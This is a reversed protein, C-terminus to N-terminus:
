LCEGAEITSGCTLCRFSHPERILKTRKARRWTTKCQPCHVAYKREIPKRKDVVGKEKYSTTRKINYPLLRNVKEAFVKWKGTHGSGGPVTHLLEHVITTKVAMDDVNDDLLQASISIDYVGEGVKRCLGWRSKARTNVTWNKVTQIPIGISLLESICENALANLNKM